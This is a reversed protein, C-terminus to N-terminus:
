LFANAYGSDSYGSMETASREPSSYGPADPSSPTTGDVNSPVPSMPGDTGGNGGSLQSAQASYQPSPYDEAADAYHPPCDQHQTTDNGHGTNNRGTNNRGANNRGPSPDDTLNLTSAARGTLLKRAVNRLETGVRDNASLLDEHAARVKDGLIRHTM